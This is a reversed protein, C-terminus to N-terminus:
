NWFEWQISLTVNRSPVTFDSITDDLINEIRVSATLAVFRIAAAAHLVPHRDDLYRGWGCVEYRARGHEHVWSLNGFVSYDPYNNSFEHTDELLCDGSAAVRFGWILLVAASVEAGRIRMEPRNEAVLGSFLPDYAYSVYDSVEEQFVTLAINKRRYGLEACWSYEDKLGPSPRLFLDSKYAYGSGIREVIAPRRYGRDLSVFVEQSDAPAFGLRLRPIPYLTGDFETEVRGGADFRFRGARREGNLDIGAVYDRESYYLATSARTRVDDTNFWAAWQFRYPDFPHDGRTELGVRADRSRASYQIYEALQYDYSLRARVPGQGLTLGADYLVAKGTGPLNRDSYTMDLRSSLKGCTYFNGYFANRTEDSDSAAAPHKSYVGSLYFGVDNSIARTLDLNYLTTSGLTTFRIHSYPRDFRNIRSHLYANGGSATMSELFALPILRTDFFGFLRNKLIRSDWVVEARSPIARGRTVLRGNRVLMGALQLLDDFFLDYARPHFSLFGANDPDRDRYQVIDPIPYIVPMTDAKVSDPPLSDTIITDLAPIVAGLTDPITQVSLFCLWLFIM